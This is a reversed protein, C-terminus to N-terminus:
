KFYFTEFSQHLFTTQTEKLFHNMVTSSFHDVFFITGRKYQHRTLYKKLEAIVREQSSQLHNDSMCEGPKTTTTIPYITSSGGHSRHRQELLM